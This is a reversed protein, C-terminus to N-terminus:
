RDRKGAKWPGRARAQSPLRAERKSLRTKKHTKRTRLKRLLGHMFLDWSGGPELTTKLAHAQVWWALWAPSAERGNRFVRLYPRAVGRHVRCDRGGARGCRGRQLWGPGSAGLAASAGALSVMPCRPSPTSNGGPLGTNGRCRDGAWEGRLPERTRPPGSGDQASVDADQAQSLSGTLGSSCSSGAPALQKNAVRITWHPVCVLQLDRDRRATAESRLHYFDESVHTKRGM